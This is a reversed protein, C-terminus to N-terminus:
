AVRRFEIRYVWPNSAWSARNANLKDWLEAFVARHGLAGRAARSSPYLRGGRGPGNDVGERRADDEDIVHLREVRVDVIELTIRSAWRPLYISPRWKSLAIAKDIDGEGPWRREVEAGDARYEVMVDLGMRGCPHWTERVWLRDGPVGHPCRLDSDLTVDKALRRTVTKRGDLIALVMPASFLIGREKM